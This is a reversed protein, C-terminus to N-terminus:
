PLFVLEFRTHPLNTGEAQPDKKNHETLYVGVRLTLFKEAWPKLDYAVIHQKDLDYIVSTFLHQVMGQREEDTSDDWMM